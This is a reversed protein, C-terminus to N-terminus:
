ATGGQLLGRDDRVARGGQVVAHLGRLAAIDALPDGDLVVLDAFAGPLLSGVSGTAGLWGAAGSTASVMVERPSMGADVMFEMERVTATTEDYPAHPPMDSGMLIEVGAAIAHQLSEWHRPGAGLAREIMWEPVGNARFFEECRSVTITPVYSVGRAAMTATLEPTLEYGHEV